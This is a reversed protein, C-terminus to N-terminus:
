KPKAGAGGKGHRRRDAAIVAALIGGFAAILAARLLTMVDERSEVVVLTKPATKEYVATDAFIPKSSDFPQDTDVTYWGLYCLTDTDEGKTLSVPLSEGPSVAFWRSPREYGSVRVTYYPEEELWLSNLFELRRLLYQRMNEIEDEANADPWRLKNMRAATQTQAQYQSLTDRILTQMMPLIQTQYVQVLRDYFAEKQYLCAFWATGAIDSRSCWFMEPSQAMYIYSNGMTADYDWIPGAYLKGTGGADDYYFFQSLMGGDPNGFVEEVLFKRIWSDEDILERYHKGTVPDIGDEAAVANEVSQCIDLVRQQSVTSDYIRLSVDGETTVYTRNKKIFRYEFDQSVLFQEEGTLAVRQPHVENRESLLYLGAYSGNLYLDVWQCQPTYALGLEQAVDSVLKNRLHSHDHANALLVWKKAQGMGLLDAAQSLELSYPRKDWDWSAQGRGHISAVEGSWSIGGQTDYIRLWGSEEHEVAEHIYEMSGSRVNIYMTSVNGSSVFRLNRQRAGDWCLLYDTDLAFSGCDMGDSVPVGNIQLEGDFQGLRFTAQDLRAYGPLFIYCDGSESEWCVIEETGDRSAVLISFPAADGTQPEPELTSVLAALALLVATLTPVIWKGVRM